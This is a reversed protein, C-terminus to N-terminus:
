LAVQKEECDSKEKIVCKLYQHIAKEAGMAFFSVNEDEGACALKPEVRTTISALTASEAISAASTTGPDIATRSSARCSPM